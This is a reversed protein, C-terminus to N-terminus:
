PLSGLSKEIAERRRARSWRKLSSFSERLLNCTFFVDREILDVLRTHHYTEPQSGVFRWLTKFLDMWGGQSVYCARLIFKVLSAFRDADGSVSEILLPSLLPGPLPIQILDDGIVKSFLLRDFSFAQIYEGAALYEGATKVLGNLDDADLLIPTETRSQGDLSRRFKSLFIEFEKEFIALANSTYVIFSQSLEHIQQVAASFEEDSEVTTEFSIGTRDLHRFQAIEHLADFQVTLEARSLEAQALQEEQVLHEFQQPREIVMAILQDKPIVCPVQRAEDISRVILNGILQVLRTRIERSAEMAQWARFASGRPRSCGRVSLPEDRCLREKHRRRRGSM